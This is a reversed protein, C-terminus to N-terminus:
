VKGLFVLWLQVNKNHCCVVGEWLLLFGCEYRNKICTRNVCLHSNLSLDLIKTLSLVKKFWEQKHIQATDIFECSWYDASNQNLLKVACRNDFHCENSLKLAYHENFHCKNSFKVTYYENFPYENPFKVTGHENFYCEVSFNWQIICMLTVNIQFSWHIISMLIVNM